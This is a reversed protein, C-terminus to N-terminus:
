AGRRKDLRRALANGLLQITQVIVILLIVTVVMVTVVM